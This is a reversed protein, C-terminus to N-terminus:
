RGQVFFAKASDGFWIRILCPALVLITVGIPLIGLPFLTMILYAPLHVLKVSITLILFIVGTWRAKKTGTNLWLVAAAISLGIIIGFWASFSLLNPGAVGFNGSDGRLGALYGRAIPTSFLCAFAAMLCAASTLSMWVSLIFVSMPVPVRISVRTAVRLRMRMLLAQAARLSIGYTALGLLISLTQTTEYHFSHAQTTMWYSAKYLVSEFIWISFVIGLLALPLFRLTKPPNADVTGGLYTRVFFYLAPFLHAFIFPGCTAMVSWMAENM